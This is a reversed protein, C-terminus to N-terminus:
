SGKGTRTGFLSCLAKAQCEPGQLSQNWSVQRYREPMDKHQIDGNLITQQENGVCIKAKRSEFKKRRSLM